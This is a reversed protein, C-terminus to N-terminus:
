ILHSLTLRRGAGEQQIAHRVDGHHDLFGRSFFARTGPLDEGGHVLVGFIGIDRRAVCLCQAYPLRQPNTNSETTTGAFASVWSWRCRPYVFSSSRSRKLCYGVRLIPGRKRPSSPTNQPLRRWTM